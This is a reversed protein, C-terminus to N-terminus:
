LVFFLVREKSLKNIDEPKGMAMPSCLGMVFDAVEHGRSVHQASEHACISYPLFMRGLLQFLSWL